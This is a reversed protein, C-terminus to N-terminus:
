RGPLRTTILQLLWSESDSGAQDSRIETSSM